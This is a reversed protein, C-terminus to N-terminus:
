LPIIKPKQHKKREEEAGDETNRGRLWIEAWCGQDHGLMKVEM